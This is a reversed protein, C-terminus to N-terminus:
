KKEKELVLSKYIKGYIDKDKMVCGAMGGMQMMESCRSCSVCTKKPDLKGKGMLDLPADPYAFASRGLGVFHAM